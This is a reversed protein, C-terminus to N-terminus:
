ATGVLRKTLKWDPNGVIRIHSPKRTEGTLVRQANSELQWLMGPMKLAHCIMGSLALHPNQEYLIVWRERLSNHVGQTPSTKCDIM